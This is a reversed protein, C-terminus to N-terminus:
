RHCKLLPEFGENKKVYLVLGGCALPYVHRCYDCRFVANLDGRRSPQNYWRAPYNGSEGGNRIQRCRRIANTNSAKRSWEGVWFRCNKLSLQSVAM